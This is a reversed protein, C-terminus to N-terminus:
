LVKIKDYKKIEELLKETKGKSDRHELDTKNYVYRGKHVLFAREKFEETTIRKM